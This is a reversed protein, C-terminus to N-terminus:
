LWGMERMNKVSRDLVDLEHAVVEEPERGHEWPTRHDEEEPLLNRRATGIARGLESADRPPYGRWWDEMFLRVHRAELAGPELSATLSDHHRALIEELERFPVCGDGIPCRVLRYGDDTFQARYDKLHVHRVRHAVRNAFALIDEGVALPNGTDFVIGVNPGAAESYELLEWSGLDQHDEIALGIGQGAAVPAWRELQRRSDAVMDWWDPTSARAGCLVSTMATRILGAGIGKAIEIEVGLADSPRHVSLIPVRHDRALRTRLAALGDADLSSLLRVDIEVCKAGIEEGLRVFGELGLPDRASGLLGVACCIGYPNLGVRLM